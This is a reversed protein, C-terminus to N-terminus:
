PLAVYSVMAGLYFVTGAWFLLRFDRVRLVGTLDLISATVVYPNTPTGTGTVTIGEGAIISCSCAGSSGCGNCAM